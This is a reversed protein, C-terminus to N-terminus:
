DSYFNVIAYLQSGFFLSLASITILIDINSAYANKQSLVSLAGFVNFTTIALYLLLKKVM